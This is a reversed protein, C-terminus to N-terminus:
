LKPFKFKGGAFSMIAVSFITVALAGGVKIMKQKFDKNQKDLEILFLKNEEEYERGERLARFMQENWYKKEEFSAKPDALLNELRDSANRYSTFTIKAMESNQLLIKDAMERDHDLATRITVQFEFFMNNVVGLIERSCELIKLREEDSLSNSVDYVSNAMSIIQNENFKQGNIPETEILIDEKAM